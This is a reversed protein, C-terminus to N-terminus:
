ETGEWSTCSCTMHQLSLFARLSNMIEGCTIRADVSFAPADNVGSTRDLGAQRPPHKVASIFVAELAGEEPSYCPFGSFSRHTSHLHLTSMKVSIGNGDRSASPPPRSVAPTVVISARQSLASRFGRQSDNGQPTILVIVHHRSIQWKGIVLLICSFLAWTPQLHETLLRELLKDRNFTAAAGVLSV